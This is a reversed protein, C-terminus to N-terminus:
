EAPAAAAAGPRGTGPLNRVVWWDPQRLQRVLAPVLEKYAAWTSPYPPACDAKVEEHLAPLAHYPVMPYMHHEVHYNMNLYLFRFVPNMYITRTNLRYDIVDDALGLHRLRQEMDRSYEKVGRSYSPGSIVPGHEHGEDGYLQFEAYHPTNENAWVGTHGRACSTTPSARGDRGDRGHGHQQPHATRRTSAFAIVGGAGVELPIGSDDGDPYMRFHHDIEPRARTRGHSGGAKDPITVSASLQVRREAYGLAPVGVLEFCETDTSKVVPRPRGKPLEKFVM